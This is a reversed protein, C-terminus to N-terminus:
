EVAVTLQTWPGGGCGTTAPDSSDPSVGALADDETAGDYISQCYWIADDGTVWDFRSWLDAAFENAPDNQAVIFGLGNNYQTINFLYPDSEAYTQTWTYEDIVHTGGYNDDWSGSLPHPGEGPVLLSWGFGGCGTLFDSRDASAVALADDETAAAYATQCWYVGEDGLAWDFKSWLNPNWADDASNQGVAWEAANDYSTIAVDLGSFWTFGVGETEVRVFGGFGDDYEGSIAIPGQGETLLTWPFGGCGTAPDSSDAAETAAAAEESEAGFATQCWLVGDETVSYDFRSWLDPNWPDDSSNQGVIWDNDNDYATIAVDERYWQLGISSDTVRVFGGWDTDYEGIVELPGPTADPEVDPTTDPEADPEVDPTADPEADPEADPSADSDADPTTDQHPVDTGVDATDEIIDTGVDGSDTGVDTAADTDTTDDDDGCAALTLASSALLVLPVSSRFTRFAM